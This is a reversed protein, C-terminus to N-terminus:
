QKLWAKRLELQAPTAQPNETLVYDQEVEEMEFTAALTMEQTTEDPMKRKVVMTLTEGVKATSLIGGLIENANKLDIAKGNVSQLEDALQIKMRRGFGTLNSTDGVVLKQTAPNIGFNVGMSYQLKKVIGKEQYNVGISNFIEAFPLPETGSVYKKLFDGVQPYTLATIKAFLEEDKFSKNKGYTKALDQMLNQTGYSGGSLQRLKIDLCLGILAGKEYVNAYQDKYKDLVNASMETFSLVDNFAKKSNNIKGSQRELYTPLDILGYKLQVHHAAYETLGEYLWLHESMKPKIFDFNGIEESHINLPTVIHFFEHAAVDKMTQSLQEPEFFEPLYYVSSYSHELAGYSSLNKDDSLYILFAYKKVPLAGGLYAKQAELVPEIDQAIVKSTFKQNPSYVSVLVDAGGVKLITTDPQCYMMPADALDNYNPIQFTETTATVSSAILSTSGYFGEPKTITIQYPQQRMNEFYGFFGFTNMVFVPSEINTGAPQFINEGKIEPSDWTDNIKYSIKNLKKAKSIEWRNEDLSKVKLENGNKDFAKFDEVYRGYDAISYTGPVIKPINYIISKEDVEPTTLVVELKDNVVKTLDVSFAYTNSQAVAFSGTFLAIIFFVFKWSYKLM